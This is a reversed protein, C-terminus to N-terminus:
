ERLGPPNAGSRRHCPDDFHTGKLRTRTPCRKRDAPNPILFSCAKKRYLTVTNIPTAQTFFTANNPSTAADVRNSLGRYSEIQKTRIIKLSVQSFPRCIRKVGNVGGCKPCSHVAPKISTVNQLPIRVPMHSARQSQRKRQPGCKKSAGIPWARIRSRMDGNPLRHSINPRRTHLGAQGM